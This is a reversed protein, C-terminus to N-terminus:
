LGTFSEMWPLTLKPFVPGFSVIHMKPLANSKVYIYAHVYLCVHNIYKKNEM